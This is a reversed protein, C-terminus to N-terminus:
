FLFLSPFFGAPSVNKKCHICAASKGSPPWFLIKDRSGVGPKFVGMEDAESLVCAPALQLNGGDSMLSVKVKCCMLVPQSPILRGTHGSKNSVHSSSSFMGGLMKRM